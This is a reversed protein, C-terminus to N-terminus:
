SGIRIFKRHIIVLSPRFNEYLIYLIVEFAMSPWMIGSKHKSDGRGKKDRICSELPSLFIFSQEQKQILCWTMFTILWSISYISENM